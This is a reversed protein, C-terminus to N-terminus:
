QIGPDIDTPTGKGLIATVSRRAIDIESGNGTKIRVTNEKINTVKGIIGGVTIVRDGVKLKSMLEKFKKDRRKQPLIIMFYFLGIMIVLWVIIGAFGGTAGTPVPSTTEPAAPGYAVFGLIPFV